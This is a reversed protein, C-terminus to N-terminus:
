ISEMAMPKITKGSEKLFIEMTSYSSARAKPEIRGGNELTSLAM